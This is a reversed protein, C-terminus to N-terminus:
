EPFLLCSYANRSSGLWGPNCCAFRVNSSVLPCLEVKTGRSDEDQTQGNLRVVEQGKVSLNAWLLPVTIKEQPVTWRFCHGLPPWDQNDRWCELGACVKKAM